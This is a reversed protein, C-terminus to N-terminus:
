RRVTASAVLATMGLPTGREGGLLTRDARIAEGDGIAHSSFHIAAAARRLLAELRAKRELLALGVLDAGDLHLLDFAFLGSARTAARAGALRRVVDDWRTRGRLARWRAVGAPM